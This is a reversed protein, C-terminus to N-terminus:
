IERIVPRRCAKMRGVTGYVITIQGSQLKPRSGATVLAFKAHPHTLPKKRLIAM